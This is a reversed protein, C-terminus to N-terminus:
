IVLFRENKIYLKTCNLFLTKIFPNKNNKKGIHFAESDKKTIPTHVEVCKGDVRIESTKRRKSKIIQYEIVSNGYRLKSIM